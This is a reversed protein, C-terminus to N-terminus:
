GRASRARVGSDNMQLNREQELVRFNRGLHEPHTLTQFQRVRGPTWQAFRKGSLTLAEAMRQTLWQRQGGYFTTRLGHSEGAERIGTFSIHATLDQLGPHDLIRDSLRHRQYARLTGQARHPLLFEEADFGYDFTLLCGKRILGAMSGWWDRAAPSIETTFGNPLYQALDPPVLPLDRISLKGDLTSLPKWHFGSESVGVGWEMWQRESSQWSLRHVPFADLLENCYAVGNMGDPFLPELVALNDVWHVRSLFRSLTETQWHRRVPSPEVLWLDPKWDPFWEELYALIDHALQGDHAGAELLCLETGVREQIRGFYLGLFEGFLPGVTVSTYFDGDRGLRCDEQEYYGCGPAYLALEM